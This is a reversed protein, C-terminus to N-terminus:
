RRSRTLSLERCRYIRGAGSSRRKPVNQCHQPVPKPVSKGGFVTTLPGAMNEPIDELWANSSMRRGADKGQEDLQVWTPTGTVGFAAADDPREDIDVHILLIGELAKEMRPDHMYKKFASCPK